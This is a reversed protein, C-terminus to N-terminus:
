HEIVISDATAGLETLLTSLNQVFSHPGCIYFHQDFNQVLTVLINRDIRRESFGIVHQRTFINLFKKGLMGSLEEGLIVDAATQNSCVLTNGALKNEKHLERLIAIFPTIGSGGAFFYGPGQYQIAGFPEGILLEDGKHALGLEHTLGKRDDYIKIILELTRSSTLSTFSFPGSRDLWEPRNLTIRAAQGPSFKYGKPKEVKFRKVNHTIFATDLIKVPHVPPPRNEMHLASPVRSSIPDDM